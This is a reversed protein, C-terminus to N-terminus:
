MGTNVVPAPRSEGCLVVLLNAVMQAKREESMTVVSDTELRRLAQEVMSVAGEVIKARAAIVAAAQQRQLMAHAIEPAYALSSIRAEVVELGAIAVRAAVEEALEGAVLETSGRLTEEGPEANDYPHTSAIHRLAAEAQVRVFHESNEVAFAAKATDAVQWVIIAAITVPNGDADNVKLENTEFNNVKVSVRRKATFPVTLQLGPKRITGVYRGLFQLVKTEGPQVVTLSTSGLWAAVVAILAGVFYAPNDSTVGQLGLFGALLVVGILLVVALGGGVSFAPEEEVNVRVGQHGVPRGAAEGGVSAGDDAVKAVEQHPYPSQPAAQYGYGQDPAAPAQVQPPPAYQQSAPQFQQQPQQQPAYPDPQRPPMPSSM